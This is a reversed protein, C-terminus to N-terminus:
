EGALFLVSHSCFGGMCVKAWIEALSQGIKLKYKVAVNLLFNAIVEICRWCM